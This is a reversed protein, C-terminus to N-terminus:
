TGAGALRVADGRIVRTIADEIRGDIDNVSEIGHFVWSSGSLDITASSTSSNDQMMRSLGEGYKSPAQIDPQMAHELASKFHGERRHVGREAGKIMDQAREDYEKSPSARGIEKDVNKGAGSFANVLATSLPFAQSAIGKIAGLVMDKGVEFMRPGILGQLYDIAGDIDKGISDWTAKLNNQFKKFEIYGKTLFIAGKLVFAELKVAADESGAVLPGFVGEFVMKLGRGIVHTENFMGVIRDLGRLLPDLDLGGFVEGLNKKLRAGQEGLGLMRKAAIGGFKSDIERTLEGVERKGSRLQEIFEGAGGQGLAAEAVAMRHLVGPMNAASVRAEKLQKTLGVLRDDSLGTADSIGDFAATAAAMEPSTQALAERTLKADRAANSMAVGFIGVTVLAAAAAAGILAIGAAGAAAGSALLTMGARAGGVKGSLDIFKSRTDLIKAGFRGLPGGTTQLVNKYADLSQKNKGFSADTHKALENVKALTRSQKEQAATAQQAAQELGKLTPTYAELAGKAQAAATAAVGMRAAAKEEAVGLKLATKELQAHQSELAAFAQASEKAAAALEKNGAGAESFAEAAVRAAERAADLKPTFAEVQAAAAAYAEAAGAHKQTAVEHAKGTRVAAKELRDFEATGEALASNAQAAQAKAASMADGAARIALEFHEAGKGAGTLEATLADLEKLTADGEPMSAAIDIIYQADAM